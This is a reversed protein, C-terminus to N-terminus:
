SNGIQSAEIHTWVHDMIRTFAGNLAEVSENPLLIEFKAGCYCTSLVRWRTTHPRPGYSGQVAISAVAAFPM